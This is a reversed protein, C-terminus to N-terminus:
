RGRRATKKTAPKRKGGPPEVGELIKDLWTNSWVHGTARLIDAKKTGGAYAARAAEILAERPPKLIREAEEKAARYAGSAADLATTHDTMDFYECV